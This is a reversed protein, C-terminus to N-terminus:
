GIKHHVDKPSQTSRDAKNKSFFIGLIQGRQHYCQKHPPIQRRVRCIRRTHTYDGCGRHHHRTSHQPSLLHRGRDRREQLEQCRDTCICLCRRFGLLTDPAALIATVTDTQPVGLASLVAVIFVSVPAAILAILKLTDYAKNSM